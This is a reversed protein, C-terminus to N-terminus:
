EVLRRLGAVGFEDVSSREVSSRAVSECNVKCSVEAQALFGDDGAGRGASRQRFRHRGIHGVRRLLDGLLRDSGGLRAGRDDMKMRALVVALRRVRRRDPGLEDGFDALVGVGDDVHRGREARRGLLPELRHDRQARLDRGHDDARHVVAQEVLHLVLARRLELLVPLLFVVARFAVADDRVVRELLDVLHDFGEDLLVDADLELAVVDAVEVNEIVMEGLM